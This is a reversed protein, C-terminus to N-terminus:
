RGHFSIPTFDSAWIHHPYQPSEILLLNPFSVSNEKSKRFKRGRRRYPKIGFIRVVRRVRKKNLNLAIAIRKHGYSPHIHLVEEIRQKVIWDKKPQRHRYYLQSRSIGTTRAFGAKTTRTKEM